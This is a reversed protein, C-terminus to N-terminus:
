DGNSSAAPPHLSRLWRRKCGASGSMACRSRRARRAFCSSAQLWLRSSAILPSCSQPHRSPHSRRPLLIPSATVPALAAPTPVQTSSATCGLEDLCDLCDLYDLCDGTNLEGYLGWSAGDHDNIGSTVDTSVVVDALPLLGMGEAAGSLFPRRVGLHSTLPSSPHASLVHNCHAIVRTNAARRAGCDTAM